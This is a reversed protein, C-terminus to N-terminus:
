GAASSQAVLSKHERAIQDLVQRLVAEDQCHDLDCHGVDKVFQSIRPDDTALMPAGSVDTAQRYLAARFRIQAKLSRIAIAAIGPNDLEGKYNALQRCRRAIRQVVGDVVDQDWAKWESPWGEAIAAEQVKTVLDVGFHVGVGKVWFYIAGTGAKPPNEFDVSQAGPPAPALRPRSTTAPIYTTESVPTPKDQRRRGNGPQFERAFSPVGNKYLYRGVGWKVAARKFSDSVGSKEDDGEDSMGANGGADCKTVVRGDPLQITLRCIISHEGREYSDWWNEPGAVDDLRNMVTRASVYDAKGGGGIPKQRVEKPDFPAALAAFFDPHETM